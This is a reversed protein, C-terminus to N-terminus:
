EDRSRQESREQIRGTSNASELLQTLRGDVQITLNKIGNHNMAGLIAAISSPISVIIAVTVIDTM